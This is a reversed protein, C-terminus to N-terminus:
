KDGQWCERSRVRDLSEKIQEQEGTGEGLTKREREAPDRGM